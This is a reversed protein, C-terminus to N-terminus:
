YSILMYATIAFTEPGQLESLGTVTITFQTQNVSSVSASLSNSQSLPLATSVTVAVQPTQNLKLDVYYFTKAYVTTGATHLWGASGYQDNYTLISNPRLPSQVLTTLTNLYNAMATLSTNLRRDVSDIISSTNIPTKGTLLGNIDNTNNQVAISLFDNQKQLGTINTALQYLQISAANLTAGANRLDASIQTVNQSLNNFDATNVKQGNQLQLVSIALSNTNLRTSLSDIQSQFKQAEISLSSSLNQYLHAQDNQFAAALNQANTLIEATFNAKADNLQQNLSSIQSAIQANLSSSYSALQASILASIKSDLTLELTDLENHVRTINENIVVVEQALKESLTNLVTLTLNQQVEIRNNFVNTLVTINNYYTDFIAGIQQIVDTTQWILTTSNPSYYGPIVINTTASSTTTNTVTNQNIQLKRAAHPLTTSTPHESPRSTVSAYKKPWAANEPSKRHRRRKSCGKQELDGLRIYVERFNTLVQPIVEEQLSKVIKDVHGTLLDFRERFDTIIPEGEAISKSLSKVGLLNKLAVDLKQLSSAHTQRAFSLLAFLTITQILAGARSIPKM